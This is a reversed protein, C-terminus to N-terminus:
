PALFPTLGDQFHAIFTLLISPMVIMLLVISLVLQFPMAVFFIPIQPSLRTMLGLALNYVISVVIFPAALQVGHKFAASVQRVILESIDGMIHPAGPKFLSYSDILAQILVHHLDTVFLLLTATTSLFGAVIASQQQSIPDFILANAMASVFSIVTGAVQVASFMILASTGLVAGSLIEGALILLLVLPDGPMEPLVDILLPTLLFSVALAISLRTRINVQKGRFGPFLFFASGVRAFIMLFAFVNLSLIEELM